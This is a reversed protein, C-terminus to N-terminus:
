HALIEEMLTSFAVVRGDFLQNLEQALAKGQEVYWQHLSATDEVEFQLCFCESQEDHHSLVRALRPSQLRGGHVARPVMTQHIWIVFNRADAQEVTYTTNFIIM